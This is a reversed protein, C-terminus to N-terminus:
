QIFYGKKTTNALKIQAIEQECRFRYHQLRQEFEAMSCITFAMPNFRLVLRVRRDVNFRDRLDIMLFLLHNTENVWYDEWWSYQVLAKHKMLLISKEWEQLAWKLRHEYEQKNFEKLRMADYEERLAVMGTLDLDYERSLTKMIDDYKREEEARLRQLDQDGYEIQM